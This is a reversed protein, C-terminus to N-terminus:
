AGSLVNFSRDPALYACKSLHEWSSTQVGFFTFCMFLFNLRNITVIALIILFDLGSKYGTFYWHSVPIIQCVEIIRPLYLIHKLTSNSHQYIKGGQCCFLNADEM